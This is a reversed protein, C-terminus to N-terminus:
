NTETTTKNLMEKTEKFTKNRKRRQQQKQPFIIEKVNTV